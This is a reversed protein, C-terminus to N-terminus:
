PPAVPVAEVPEFLYDCANSNEPTWRALPFAEIAEFGVWQGARDQVIRRVRYRLARLLDMLEAVRRAYADIDSKADALLVECMVPPRQEALLRSMGRLAELEGGEVDIKVLAVSGIGLPVALDDLRAGMMWERRARNGPRLDSRTTATAAMPDSDDFYFGIPRTEASLGCPILAIGPLSNARVLDGVYAICRANPEFGFYPSSLGEALYDALTQGFNVGVDLFPGRRDSLIRRLLQGKWSPQWYLWALAAADHFPTIIPRTGIISLGATAVRRALRFPLRRSLFPSLVM